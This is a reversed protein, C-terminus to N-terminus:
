IWLQGRWLLFFIKPRSRSKDNESREQLLLDILSDVKQQNGRLTDLLKGREDDQRELLSELRKIRDTQQEVKLEIVPLSGPPGIAEKITDVDAKLTFAAGILGVLTVLIPWLKFWDMKAQGGDM